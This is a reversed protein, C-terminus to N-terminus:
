IHIQYTMILVLFLKLDECVQSSQDEYSESETLHICLLDIKLVEYISLLSFCIESYSYDCEKNSAM